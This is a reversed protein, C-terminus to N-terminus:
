AATASRCYRYRSGDFSACSLGRNSKVKAKLNRLDLPIM